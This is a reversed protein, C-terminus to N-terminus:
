KSIVLFCDNAYQQLQKLLFEIDEVEKFTGKMKSRGQPSM